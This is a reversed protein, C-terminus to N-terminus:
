NSLKIRFTLLFFLHFYKYIFLNHKKLKLYINKLKSIIILNNLILFMFVWDNKNEFYNSNFNEHELMIPMMIILAIGLM